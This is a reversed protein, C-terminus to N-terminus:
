VISKLRTAHPVQKGPCYPAFLTPGYWEFLMSQVFEATRM